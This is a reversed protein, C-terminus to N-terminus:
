DTPPPIRKGQPDVEPSDTREVLGAQINRGTAHELREASLHLHDERLAAYRSLYTEWLRHSRVLDRGMMRGKETLEVDAGKRTVLGSHVLGRLLLWGRLRPLRMAEALMDSDVTREEIRYLMALVDESAIRWSLRLQHTARSLLGHRPGFLVALGFLVGLAVAISGATSVSGCGFAAPVGVAGLHGAVAGLVAIALSWVIMIPLRDTLMSAAAAPVIMVAVVLINGVAEFAAVATVAVLTMLAYHMATANIGMSTALASDFSSVELEKYFAIVFAANVALVCFLTVAVRPIEWAGVRVTDLPTLEIAGYLVCGPDLDVHDAAQVIMVLGIAFLTTFVVGMSAGEDVKGHGRIWETFLATLVGAIVAGAFMPFSARSDSLFFAAALGPLVAHSIADGMMSMKRLVLFNGPLACAMACLVGVVVIWGDLEWSWGHFVGSM